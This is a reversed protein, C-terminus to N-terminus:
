KDALRELFRVLNPHGWNRNRSLRMVQWTQGNIPMATAGALCGKSYFGISRAELPAPKAKRGFLQKAALHPDSPNAFAPLPQPNLTGKDQARAAGLSAAVLLPAACAALIQAITTRQM